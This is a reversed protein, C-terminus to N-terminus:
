LLIDSISFSEASQTSTTVLNYMSIIPQYYDAHQSRTLHLRAVLVSILRSPWQLLSANSLHSNTIQLWVPCHINMRVKESMAPNIRHLCQVPYKLSQWKSINCFDKFICSEDLANHSQWLLQNSAHPVTYIHEWVNCSRVFLLCHLSTYAMLSYWAPCYSSAHSDSM